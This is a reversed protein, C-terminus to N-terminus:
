LNDRDLAVDYDPLTHVGVIIPWFSGRYSRTLGVVLYIDSVGYRTELDGADFDTWGGGEPLWERGLARWRLDTVSLGGKAHSGLYRRRDLGFSLRADLLGSYSDLRFTGKV